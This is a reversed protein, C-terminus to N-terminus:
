MGLAVQEELANWPGKQEETLDFGFAAPTVIFLAASAWLAVRM